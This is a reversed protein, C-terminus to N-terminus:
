DYSCSIISLSAFLIHSHPPWIIIKYYTTDFTVAMRKCISMFNRQTQTTEPFILRRILNDTQEWTCDTDNQHLLLGSPYSQVVIVIITIAVFLLIRAVISELWKFCFHRFDLTKLPETYIFAWRKKSQEDIYLLLLMEELEHWHSDM